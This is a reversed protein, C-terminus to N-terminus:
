GNEIRRWLDAKPHEVPFIIEWCKNRENKTMMPTSGNPAIYVGGDKLMNWVNDFFKDNVAHQTIDLENFIAMSVSMGHPIKRIETIM